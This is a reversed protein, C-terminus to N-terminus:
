SLDYRTLKVLAADKDDIFEQIEEFTLLSIPKIRWPDNVVSPCIFALTEGNILNELIIRWQKPVQEIKTHTRVNPDSFDLIDSM